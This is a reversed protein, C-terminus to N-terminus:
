RGAVKRYDSIIRKATDESASFREALERIMAREHMDWFERINSYKSFYDKVYEACKELDTSCSETDEITVGLLEAKKKVRDLDIYYIVGASTSGKRKTIKLNDMASSVRNRNLWKPKEGTPYDEVLMKVIEKLLYQTTTSTIMKRLIMKEVEDTFNMIRAETIMDKLLTKLEELKDPFLISCIAILPQTLEIERGTAGELSPLSDYARKIAEAYYLATIYAGKRWEVFEPAFTNPEKILKVDSPLKEMVIKLARTNLADELGKIGSFVRPCYVEFTEIEFDKEASACRPVKAGAKYGARVIALMSGILEKPISKLMDEDLIQTGRHQNPSRFLYTEKPNVVLEGKFTMCAKLLSNRTKGSGPSGAINQYPYVSFMRHMYTGFIWCADLLYLRKDEYWTYGEILTHTGKLTNQVIELLGGNDKKERLLRTTAALEHQVHPFQSGLRITPDIIYRPEAHGEKPEVTGKTVVFEGISTLLVRASSPRFTCMYCLGVGGKYDQSPHITIPPPHKAAESLIEDVTHTHESSDTQPKQKEKDARAAVLLAAVEAVKAENVKLRKAIEKQWYLSSLDSLKIAQKPKGDLTILVDNGVVTVRYKGLPLGEPEPPTFPDDNNTM